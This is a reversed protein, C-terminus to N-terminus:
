RGLLVFRENNIVTNEASLQQIIPLMQEFIVRVGIIDDVFRALAGLSPQVELILMICEGGHNLAHIRFIQFTISAEFRQQDSHDNLHQHHQLPELQLMLRLRCREALQVLDDMEDFIVIRLVNRHLM